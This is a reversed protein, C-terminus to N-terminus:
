PRRGRIHLESVSIVASTPITMDGCGQQKASAHESSLHPVVLKCDKDDHALWGVSRCILPKPSVGDLPQWDPSCGYSDRWEILVLKMNGVPNNM